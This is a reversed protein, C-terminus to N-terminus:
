HYKSIELTSLLTLTELIYGANWNLFLKVKIRREVQFKLGRFSLSYLEYFHCPYNQSM